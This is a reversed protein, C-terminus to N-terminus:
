RAGTEAACPCAREAVGMPDVPVTNEERRFARRNEAEEAGCTGELNQDRRRRVAPVGVDLSHVMDAKDLRLDPSGPGSRVFTLIASGSNDM